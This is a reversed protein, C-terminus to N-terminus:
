SKIYEKRPGSLDDDQVSRAVKDGFARSVKESKFLGKFSAELYITTASCRPSLFRKECM